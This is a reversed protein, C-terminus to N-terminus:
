SVRGGGGHGPKEDLRRRCARAMRSARLALTTFALGGSLGGVLLIMEVGFAAALFGGQTVVVVAMALAVGFGLAGMM